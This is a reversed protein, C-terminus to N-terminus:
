TVPQYYVVNGSASIAAGTFNIIFISFGHPMTNGVARSLPWNSQLVQQTTTYSLVGLLRFDNPSAFTYAAQSTGPVSTVGGTSAYWTTGGDTTFWPVVYVYAAKDNAPATNAMTLKVGILYDRAKTSVNSVQASLWGATASSAMSNLNTVTMSTDSGYIISQEIVSTKLGGASSLATPFLGILTTVRQLLRKFLGVYPATATDTSAAPESQTGWTLSHATSTYVDNLAGFTNLTNDEINAMSVAMNDLVSKDETALVVPSSDAADARGNPNPPIYSM